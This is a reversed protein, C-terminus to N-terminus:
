VERRQTIGRKAKRVQRCRAKVQGLMLTTSSRTSRAAAMYSCATQTHPQLLEGRLYPQPGSHQCAGSASVLVLTQVLGPEGTESHVESKNWEVTVDILARASPLSLLPLREGHRVSGM